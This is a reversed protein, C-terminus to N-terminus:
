YTVSSDVYYQYIEFFNIVAGEALLLTEFAVFALCTTGLNDTGVSATPM